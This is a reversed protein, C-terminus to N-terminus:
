LTTSYNGIASDIGQCTRLPAAGIVPGCLPVDSAQHVVSSSHGIGFTCRRPLRMHVVLVSPQFMCARASM